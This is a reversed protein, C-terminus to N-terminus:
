LLAPLCSKQGHSKSILNPFRDHEVFEESLSDFAPQDAPKIISFNCTSGFLDNVSGRLRGTSRNDEEFCRGADIIERPITTEMQQGGPCESELSDRNGIEGTMRPHTMAHQACMAFINM